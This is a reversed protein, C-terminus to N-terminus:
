LLCCENMKLLVLTWTPGFVPKGNCDVPSPTVQPLFAPFTLFDDTVICTGFYELLGFSDVTFSPFGFIYIYKPFIYPSFVSAHHLPRM